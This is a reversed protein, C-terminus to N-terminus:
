LTFINLQNIVVPSLFLLLFDSPFEIRVLIGQVDKETVAHRYCSNVLYMRVFFKLCISMIVILLFCLFCLLPDSPFFQWLFRVWLCGIPLSLFGIRHPVTNEISVTASEFRKLMDYRLIDTFQRYAFAPIHNFKSIFAHKVWDVLVESGQILLVVQLATYVTSENVDWDMDAFNQIVIVFIFIALQFREVIDLVIM